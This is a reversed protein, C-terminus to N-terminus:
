EARSGARYNNPVGGRKKLLNSRSPLTMRDREFVELATRSGIKPATEQIEKERNQFAM